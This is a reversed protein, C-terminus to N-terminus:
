RGDDGTHRSMSTPQPRLLRYETRTHAHSHSAGVNEYICHTHCRPSFVCKCYAVNRCGTCLDMNESRTMTHCSACWRREGELEAKLVPLAWRAGLYARRGWKADVFTSGKTRKRTELEDISRQLTEKTARGSALLLALCESVERDDGTLLGASQSPSFDACPISACVFVNAGPSTDTCTNLDAGGADLLIFVTKHHGM